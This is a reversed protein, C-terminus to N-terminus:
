GSTSSPSPSPSPSDSPTASPSVPAPGPTYEAYYRATPLVPVEVVNRGAEATVVTLRVLAGPADPVDSLRIESGGDTLAAGSYASVSASAEPAADGVGFQIEITKATQNVAQGVLVGAGGESDAVVVLNRLDLGPVTLAVGDAPIYPYDTQVPSFVGCGSALLTAGALAGLRLATTARNTVRGPYRRGRSAAVTATSTRALM